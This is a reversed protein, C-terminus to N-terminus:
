LDSGVDVIRHWKQRIKKMRNYYRWKGKEERKNRWM